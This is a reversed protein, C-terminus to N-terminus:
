TDDRHTRRETNVKQQQDFYAIKEKLGWREVGFVSNERKNCRQGFYARNKSNEEAIAGPVSRGVAEIVIWTRNGKVTERQSSEPGLGM